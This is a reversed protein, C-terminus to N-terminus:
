TKSGPAYVNVGATHSATTHSSDFSNGTHNQSRHKGDCDPCHGSKRFFCSCGTYHPQFHGFPLGLHPVRGSTHYCHPIASLQVASIFQGGFLPIDPDAQVLILQDLQVPVGLDGYFLGPFIVLYQHLVATDEEIHFFRQFFILGQIDPSGGKGSANPSCHANDRRLGFKGLGTFDRLSQDCYFQQFSLDSQGEIGEASSGNFGMFKCGPRQGSQDTDLRAPSINRIKGQRFQSKDLSCCPLCQCGIGKHQHFKGPILSQSFPKQFCLDDGPLFQVLQYLIRFIQQIFSVLRCLFFLLLFLILKLLSHGM